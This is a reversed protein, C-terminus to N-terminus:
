YAVTPAHHTTKTTTTRTTTSPAISPTHAHHTRRHSRSTGHHSRNGHSRGPLHFIRRLRTGLSPRTPRVGMSTLQHQANNRGAHTTRPNNIASKLGRVRNQRHTTHTTRTTTHKNSGFM